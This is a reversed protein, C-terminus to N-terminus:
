WYVHWCGHTEVAHCQLTIRYEGPVVSRSPGIRHLPLGHQVCARGPVYWVRRSPYLRPVDQVGTVVGARMLEAVGGPDIPWYELSAGGAPLQVPVTVSVVQHEAAAPFGAQRFQLDFHPATSANGVSISRCGFIHFGPLPLQPPWAIEAGLRARLYNGLERLAPAFHQRLMANSEEVSGAMADADQYHALGLTHFDVGPRRTWRERLTFIRELMEQRRAASFVEVGNQEIAWAM